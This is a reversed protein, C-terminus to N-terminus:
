ARGGQTATFLDLEEEHDSAREIPRAHFHVLPRSLALADLRPSLSRRFVFAPEGCEGLPQTCTGPENTDLDFADSTMDGVTVPREYHEAWGEIDEVSPRPLYDVLIEQREWYEPFRLEWWTHEYRGRDVYVSYADRATWARDRQDIQQEWTMEARAHESAAAHPDDRWACTVLRRTLRKRFRCRRCRNGSYCACMSDDNRAM